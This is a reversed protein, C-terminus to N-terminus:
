RIVRGSATINVTDSFSGKTVIWQTAQWQTGIGRPTFFLTSQNVSFSVGFQRGIRTTSIVQWATGADTRTYYYVSTDTPWYVLATQKGRHIASQKAVQHLSIMAEIAGRAGGKETSGRVTPLAVATLIGIMAVVMLIEILTFGSKKM